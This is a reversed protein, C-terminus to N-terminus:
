RPIRPSNQIQYTPIHLVYQYNEEINSMIGVRMKLFRYKKSSESHQTIKSNTGINIVM